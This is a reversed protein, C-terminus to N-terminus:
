HSYLLQQEIKKTFCIGGASEQCLISESLHLKWGRSFVKTKHNKYQSTLTRPSMFAQEKIRGAGRGM